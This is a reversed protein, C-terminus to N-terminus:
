LVLDTIAMRLSAKNEVSIVKLSLENTMSM